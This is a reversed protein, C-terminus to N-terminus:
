PMYLSVSGGEDGVVGFFLQSDKPLGVDGIM